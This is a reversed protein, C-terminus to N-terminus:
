VNYNYNDDYDENEYEPDYDENPRRLYGNEEEDTEETEEETEQENDGDEEDIEDEQINPLEYLFYSYSIDNWVNNSQLNNSQVNNNQVDTHVNNNQVESQLNNDNVNLEQNEQRSEQNNQNINQELNNLANITDSMMNQLDNSVNETQNNTQDNETSSGVMPTGEIESSYYHLPPLYSLAYRRPRQLAPREYLKERCLPCDKAYPKNSMVHKMFCDYCFVHNCKTKVQPGTSIIEQYCVPCEIPPEVLNVDSHRAPSNLLSDFESDNIRARKM